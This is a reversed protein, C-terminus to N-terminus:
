CIRDTIEEQDRARRTSPFGMLRDLPSVGSRAHSELLQATSNCHDAYCAHDCYILHTGVERLYGAEIPQQCKACCSQRFPSRGNVLVFRM